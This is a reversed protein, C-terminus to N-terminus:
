KNYIKKNYTFFRSKDNSHSFLSDINIYHSQTYIYFIDNLIRKIDFKFQDQEGYNVKKNNYYMQYYNDQSLFPSIDFHINHYNNYEDNNKKNYKENNIVM